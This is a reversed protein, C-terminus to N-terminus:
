GMRSIYKMSALNDIRKKLYISFIQRFGLTEMRAVLFGITRKFPDTEKRYISKLSKIDKTYHQNLQSMTHIHTYSNIGNLIIQVEQDPILM